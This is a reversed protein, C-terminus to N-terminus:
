QQAVPLTVAAQTCVPDCGPGNPQSTTYDPTLEADLLVADAHELTIQVSAPTEELQVEIRGTGDDFASACISDLVCLSPQWDPCRDDDAVEFECAGDQDDSVWTLRYKGNAFRPSVPDLELSLGSGCGIETCSQCALTPELGVALLAIAFAHTSRM